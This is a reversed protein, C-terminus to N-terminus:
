ENTPVLAICSIEIMEPIHCEITQRVPYSGNKFYSAYVENMAAFDKLDKLFVDVRVVHEFDTGAAALINGINDLTQRTADQISGNVKQGTQPHYPLQGAVFLLKGKSLDAVVGPSYPGVAKPGKAPTIRELVQTEAIMFHGLFIISVLLKKYM